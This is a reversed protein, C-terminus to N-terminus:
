RCSNTSAITSGPDGVVVSGSSIDISSLSREGVWERWGESSDVRRRFWGIGEREEVAGEEEEGEGIEVVPSRDSDGSSAM